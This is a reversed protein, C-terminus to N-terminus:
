SEAAIDIAAKAGNLRAPAGNTSVIAPPDGARASQSKM